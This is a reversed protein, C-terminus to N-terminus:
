AGDDMRAAIWGTRTPIGRDLGGEDSALVSSTPRSPRRLGPEGQRGTGLAERQDLSRVLPLHLVAQKTKLVSGAVCSLQESRDTIRRAADAVRRLIAGRPPTNEPSRPEAASRGRWRYLASVEAPDPRIASSVSCPRM